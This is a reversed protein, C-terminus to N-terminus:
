RMGFAVDSDLRADGRKLEILVTGNLNREFYPFDSASGSGAGAKGGGRGVRDRETDSPRVTGSIGGLFGSVVIGTSGGIDM